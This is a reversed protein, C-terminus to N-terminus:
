NANAAAGKGPYFKQYQPSRVFKFFDLWIQPLRWFDGSIRALLNKIVNYITNNIVRRHKQMTLVDSLLIFCDCVRSMTYLYNKILMQDLEKATYFFESYTDCCERATIKLIYLYTSNKPCQTCGAHQQM